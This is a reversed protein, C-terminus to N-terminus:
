GAVRRWLRELTARLEARPASAAGPRALLVVDVAPLGARRARFTERAARKIRNRAVAGPVARASIALGLRAHDLANPMVALSVHKEQLRTGRALVTEFDRPSRLRAGPPFAVTM